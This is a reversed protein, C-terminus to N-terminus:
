RDKIFSLEFVLAPDITSPESLCSSEGKFLSERSFPVFATSRMGTM